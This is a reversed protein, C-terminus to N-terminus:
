SYVPQHNGLIEPFIIWLHEWGGTSEVMEAQLNAGLTTAFIQQRSPIIPGPPMNPGKAIFMHHFGPACAQGFMPHFYFSSGNIIRISWCLDESLDLRWRGSLNGSESSSSDGLSQIKSAFGRWHTVDVHNQSPNLIWSFLSKVILCCEKRQTRFETSWCKWVAIVLM